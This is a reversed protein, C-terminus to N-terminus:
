YVLVRYLSRYLALVLYLIIPALFLYITRLFISFFPFTLSCSPPRHSIRHNTSTSGAVLTANTSSGLTVALYSLYSASRLATMSRRMTFM